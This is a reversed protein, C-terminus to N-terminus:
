NQSPRLLVCGQSKKGRKVIVVVYKREKQRDLKKGEERSIIRQDNRKRGKGKKLYTRKMKGKELVAAEDSYITARKSPERRRWDACINFDSGVGGELGTRLLLILSPNRKEFM